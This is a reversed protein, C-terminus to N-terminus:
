LMSSSRGRIAREFEQWQQPTMLNKLEQLLQVLMGASLASQLYLHPLQSRAYLTLRTELEGIFAQLHQDLIQQVNRKLIMSSITQALGQLHPDPPATILVSSSPSTVDPSFISQSASVLQELQQALDTLQEPTLMVQITLAMAASVGGASTEQLPTFYQELVWSLLTEANAPQAPIQQFEIFDHTQTQSRFSQHQAQRLQYIFEEVGEVTTFFQGLIRALSERHEKRNHNKFWSLSKGIQARTQSAGDKAAKHQVWLMNNLRTQFDVTTIRMMGRNAASEHQNLHELRLTLARGPQLKKMSPARAVPRRVVPTNQPQTLSRHSGQYVKPNAPRHRYSSQRPPQHIGMMSQHHEPLTNVTRGIRHDRRLTMSRKPLSEDDTFGSFDPRRGRKLSHSPQPPPPAGRTNWSQGYLRFFYQEFSNLNQIQISSLVTQLYQHIPSNYISGQYVNGRATAMPQLGRMRQLISRQQPSLQTQDLLLKYNALSLEPMQLEHQLHTILIEGADFQKLEVLTQILNILQQAMFQPSVPQSELRQLIRRLTAQVMQGHQYSAPVVSMSSQSFMSVQSEYGSLDESFSGQSPSFTQPTNRPKSPKPLLRAYLSSHDEANSNDFLLTIIQEQHVTEQLTSNLQLQQQKSDFALVHGHIIRLGMLKPDSNMQKLYNIIAQRAKDSKLYKLVRQLHKIDWTMKRLRERLPDALSPEALVPPTTQSELIPVPDDAALLRPTNLLVPVDGHVQPAEEDQKGTTEVTPTDSAASQKPEPAIEDIFEKVVNPEEHTIFHALAAALPDTLSVEIDEPKLTSFVKNLENYSPTDSLSKFPPYLKFAAVILNETKKIAAKISGDDVQKNPNDDQLRRIEINRAWRSVVPHILSLKYGPMDKIVQMLRLLYSKQSETLTHTPAEPTLFTVNVHPKTKKNSRKKEQTEKVLTAGKKRAKTSPPPLTTLPNEVARPKEKVEDDKRGLAKNQSFAQMSTIGAPTLLSVFVELSHTNSQSAYFSTKSGIPANTWFETLSDASSTKLNMLAQLQQLCQIATTPLHEDLWTLVSEYDDMSHVWTLLHDVLANGESSLLVQSQAAIGSHPPHQSRRSSSRKTWGTMASLRRFIEYSVEKPQPLPTYTPLNALHSAELTQGNDMVWTIGPLDHNLYAMFDLTQDPTIGEIAAKLLGRLASSSTLRRKYNKEEKKFAYADIYALEGHHPFKKSNSKVLGKLQSSFLSQNGLNHHDLWTLIIQMHEHASASNLMFRYLSEALDINIDLAASEPSPEVQSPDEPPTPDDSHKDPDNNQSSPPPNTNPLRETNGRAEAPKGDSTKGSENPTNGPVQRIYGTLNIALFDQFSSEDPFPQDCIHEGRFLLNYMYISLAQSNFLHQCPPYDDTLPMLELDILLNHLESNRPFDIVYDGEFSEAVKLVPVKDLKEAPIISRWNQVRFRYYSFSRQGNLDLRLVPTIRFSAPQRAPITHEPKIASHWEPEISLTENTKINRLRYYDAAQRNRSNLRLVPTAHFTSLESHIIESDITNNSQDDGNNSNDDPPIASTLIDGEQFPLTKYIWHVGPLLRYECPEAETTMLHELAYGPQVLLSCKPRMFSQVLIGSGTTPPTGDPPPLFPGVETTKSFANLLYQYIWYLPFGEMDPESQVLTPNFDDPILQSMEYLLHLSPIVLGSLGAKEM